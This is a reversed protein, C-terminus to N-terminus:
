DTRKERSFLSSPFDAAYHKGEPRPRYTPHPADGPDVVRRYLHWTSHGLIPMVVALGILFPISGLVLLAVVIMAWVAMTFPNVLVARISTAVAASFGVDRDLLLPFSVVSIMFVVLAFVFGVANGIAVLDWGQPTTLVSNIFGALSTPPIALFLVNYISQAMLLWAVFIALLLSGLTVIAPLSSSRLVHFAEKWSAPEGLERRRSLEYLGIAAIPGVLAFGAVLPFVMPLLDYGLALRAFFLGVLPYILSLFVVHSPMAKFDDLGAALAAKLDGLGIKRITIQAPRLDAGAIAHPQAM